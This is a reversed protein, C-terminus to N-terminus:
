GGTGRCRGSGLEVRVTVLWGLFKRVSFVTHTSVTLANVWTVGMLGNRVFAIDGTVVSMLRDTM